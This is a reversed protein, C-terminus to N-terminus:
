GYFKRTFQTRLKTSILLPSNFNYQYVKQYRHFKKCTVEHITAVFYIKNNQLYSGLQMTRSMFWLAKVCMHTGWIIISTTLRNRM